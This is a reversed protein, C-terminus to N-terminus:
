PSLVGTGAAKPLSCAPKQGDMDRLRLTDTTSLEAVTAVLAVLIKSKCFSTSLSLMVRGLVGVVFILFLPSFLSLQGFSAIKFGM